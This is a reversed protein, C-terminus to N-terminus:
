ELMGECDNSKLHRALASDMTTAHLKFWGPLQGILYARAMIISGRQVRKEFHKLDSMVRRHESMHEDMAPFTSKEMWVSENDFHNQTHSLLESFRKQFVQPDALELENVLHIFEEHTTDMQNIGLMYESNQNDILM